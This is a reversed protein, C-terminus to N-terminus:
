QAANHVFHTRDAAVGWREFIAKDGSDNHKIRKALYDFVGMQRQYWLSEPMRGHISGQTIYHIEPQQLFFPKYTSDGIVPLSDQISAIVLARAQPSKLLESYTLSSLNGLQFFDDGMAAVMLGEYSSYVDGEPSYALQGLVPGRPCRLNLYALEHKGGMRSSMTAALQETIQVGGENLEIIYNLMNTYFTLFDETSYDLGKASANVNDFADLGNLFVTQCGLDVFTDVIEKWYPFSDGTITQLVEVRGMAPTLGMEEYRQNIKRVWTLTTANAERNQSGEEPAGLVTCIQIQNELLFTLKEEDLGSLNNVLSFSLQKKHTTNKQQAYQVCHTLTDWHNLSEEGRFEIVLEPNTTQFAFRIAKEAVKTSMTPGNRNALVLRHLSPGSFLHKRNAWFKEYYESDSLSGQIFGQSQLETYLEDSTELQGTVLQTFQDPALFRSEGIDNTLFYDEGVRRFNFPLLGTVNLDNVGPLAPHPNNKTQM